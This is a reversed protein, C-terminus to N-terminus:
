GEVLLGVQVDMVNTRTSGTRVHGGVREFFAYSDNTSLHDEASVGLSNARTMTSPSVIAGAVDTPGDIGDTGASLLVLLRNSGAMELAAGLALEQNRGGRGSGKVTVTTEGGWVFCMPQVAQRALMQRALRRGAESAEGTVPDPSADTAYGMSRARAGAGERADANSGVIMAMTSRFVPDGPKPTEGRRGEVGALLYSVVASPYASRGGRRDLTALADGFTTPDPVTPGSAITTPSDGVVDSIILTVVTAPAAAVALRGGKIASLHKRVTNMEAIDAGTRLLTHVTQRLHELSLGPAPLSWLSSGGGSLLAILLDKEGAMRAVEMARLAARHSREDPVPHASAMVELGGLATADATIDPATVTGGSLRDGAFSLIASTMPAAAKGCATVFVRQFRDLSPLSRHSLAASVLRAPSASDVAALFIERADSELRELVEASM